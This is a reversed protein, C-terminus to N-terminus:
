GSGLPHRTTVHDVATGGVRVPANEVVCEVRLCYRDIRSGSLLDPLSPDAIDIAALRDGHSGEHHLSLHQHPVTAAFHACPSKSLDGTVPAACRLRGKVEVLSGPPLKAVDAAPTTATARMLAMDNRQARWSWLLFAASPVLIIGALVLWPVM